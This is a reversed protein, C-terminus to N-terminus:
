SQCNPCYVTQRQGLNVRKITTGCQLCPSGARGYVLLKIEFYGREGEVDFYDRLTTGGAEVAEKLTTKIADVLTSTEARGVRRCSRRPRIGSRFLAENAYINGIGVVVHSDMILSKIPMKRGRLASYLYDSTFSESLPEPGLDQLLKHQTDRPQWLVSGFRRPDNLRLVESNSFVLDVHDHAQPALHDPVVNLRGSM